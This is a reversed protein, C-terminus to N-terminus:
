LAGAAAAVARERTHQQADAPIAEWIGHFDEALTIPQFGVDPYTVFLV